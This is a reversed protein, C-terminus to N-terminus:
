GRPLDIATPDRDTQALVHNLIYQRTRRIAYLEDDELEPDDSWMTAEIEYFGEDDSAAAVDECAFNDIMRGYVDEQPLYDPDYGFGEVRGEEFLARVPAYLLIPMEMSTPISRLDEISTLLRIHDPNLLMNVTRSIEFNLVDMPTIHRSHFEQRMHDFDSGFVSKYGQANISDFVDSSARAGLLMDLSPMTGASTIEITDHIRAM